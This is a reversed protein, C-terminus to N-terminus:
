AISVSVSGLRDFSATFRDGATIPVSAHLAGTMVVDGAALTVGLRGLTEAAWAVASIPDGLVAAGAGTAVVGGNKELVAGVLRPEFGDVPVTTPSVVVHATSALDAVTDPLAIKWDAIRSDIVELAAAIGNIADLVEDHSVRGSLPRRLIAAIEAEIRPVILRSADVTGGDPVVSGSLIAGYDPQDVGLQAQMAASTLGLKWGVITEGGAVHRGVIRRQIEYADAATLGPLTTTLPAVPRATRRAEILQAAVTEARDDDITRGPSSADTM